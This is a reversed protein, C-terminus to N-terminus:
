EKEKLWFIKDDNCHCAKGRVFEDCAEMVGNRWYCLSECEEWHEATVPSICSTILLPILFRM